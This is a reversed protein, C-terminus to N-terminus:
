AMIVLCQDRVRWEARAGDVDFDRVRKPRFVNDMEEPVAHLGLSGRELIAASLNLDIDLTYLDPILLSLRRPELNLTAFPIM